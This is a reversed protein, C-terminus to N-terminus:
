QEADAAGEFADTADTFTETMLDICEQTDEETFEPELPAESFNTSEQVSEVGMAYYVIGIGAAICFAIFGAIGAIIVAFSAM